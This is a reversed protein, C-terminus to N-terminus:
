GIDLHVAGVEESDRGVLRRLIISGLLVQRRRCRRGLGLVNM